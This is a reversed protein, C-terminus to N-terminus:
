GAITIHGYIRGRIAQDRARRLQQIARDFVDNAICNSVGSGAGVNFNRQAAVITAANNADAIVARANGFRLQRIKEPRKVADAGRAFAFAAALMRLMTM